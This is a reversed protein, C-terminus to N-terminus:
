QGMAEQLAKGFIAAIKTTLAEVKDRGKIGLARGRIVTITKAADIMMIQEKQLHDNLNASPPLGLKALAKCRTDGIVGKVACNHIRKKSWVADCGCEIMFTDFDVNTETLKNRKIYWDADKFKVLEYRGTRFLTPLVDKALWDQFPKAEPRDSRMMIRHIGSENVFKMHQGTKTSPARVSLRNGGQSDNTKESFTRIEDPVWVTKVETQECLRLMHAVQDYGLGKALDKACFLVTDAKAEVMLELGNITATYKKIDSM